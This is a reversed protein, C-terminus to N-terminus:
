RRAWTESGALNFQTLAVATTEAAEAVSVQGAAALDLSGRLGGGLIDATAIGAKALENIGEAAEKASFVSDAGLQIAAQRLTEMEAVTAGTNAQVASMAKDFDAFRKVAIGLGVGIAAGAVAAGKALKDFGQQATPASKTVDEVASKAKRMGATFGEVRAQLRVSVVKEAM